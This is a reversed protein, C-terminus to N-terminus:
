VIKEDKEKKNILCEIKAIFKKAPEVLPKIKEEKITIWDGYDGKQRLDFLRNYMKAFLEDLKNENVYHLGLLRKVGKHTHAEHKDNILLATVAYFCAYYLRNAATRYFKNEIHVPIEALIENAKDLNFKVIDERESEALSM